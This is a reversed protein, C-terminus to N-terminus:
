RTGMMPLAQGHLFRRLFRFTAVLARGRRTLTYGDSARQLLGRACLKEVRTAVMMRGSAFRILEVRGLPRRRLLLLLSVSVSSDVLTILFVWLECGFGYVLGAAWVEVGLGYSGALHGVLLLGVGGGVILFRMVMSRAPQLLGVLIQGAIAVILAVLASALWVHSETRAPSVGRLYM